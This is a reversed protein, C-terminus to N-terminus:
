HHREHKTETVTGHQLSKFNDHTNSFIRSRRPQIIKSLTNPTTHHTPTQTRTLQAGIGKKGCGVYSAMEGVSLTMRETSGIRFVGDGRLEYVGNKAEEIRFAEDGRLEYVGNKAEVVYLKKFVNEAYGIIIDEEEEYGGRM